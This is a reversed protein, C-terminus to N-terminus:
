VCVFSHVSWPLKHRPCGTYGAEGVWAWTGDEAQEQWGNDIGRGVPCGPIRVSRARARTAFAAALPGSRVTVLRSWSSTAISPVDTRALDHNGKEADSEGLRGLMETLQAQALFEQAGRLVVHRIHIAGEM